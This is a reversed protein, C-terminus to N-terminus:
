NLVWRHKKICREKLLFGDRDFLHEFFIWFLEGSKFTKMGSKSRSKVGGRGGGGSHFLAPSQTQPSKVM